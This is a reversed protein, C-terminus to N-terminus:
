GVGVLGVEGGHVYAHGAVRLARALAEEELRGEELVTARGHEGRAPARVLDVEVIGPGLFGVDLHLKGFAEREVVRLRGRGDADALDALVLRLRHDRLVPAREDVLALEEEALAARASQEERGLDVRVELSVEVGHVFLVAVGDGDLLARGRGRVGGRRRVLDSTLVSFASSFVIVKWNLM